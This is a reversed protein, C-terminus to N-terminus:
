PNNSRSHEGKRIRERTGFLVAYSMHYPLRTRETSVPKLLM